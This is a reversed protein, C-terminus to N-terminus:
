NQSHDIVRRMLHETDVRQTMRSGTGRTDYHQVDPMPFLRGPVRDTKLRCIPLTSVKRSMSM